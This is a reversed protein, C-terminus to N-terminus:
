LIMLHMKKLQGRKRWHPLSPNELGPLFLATNRLECWQVSCAGALAVKSVFGTLGLSRFKCFRYTEWHCGELWKDTKTDTNIDMSDMSDMSGMSDMDKTPFVPHDDLTWRGLPESKRLGSAGGVCRPIRSPARLQRALRTASGCYLGLAQPNFM